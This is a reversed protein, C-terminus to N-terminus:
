VTTEPLAARSYRVNLLGLLSERIAKMTDLVLLLDDNRWRDPSKVRLKVINQATSQDSLAARILQPPTARLLEHLRRRNYILDHIVVLAAPMELLNALVVLESSSLEGQGARKKYFNVAGGRMSQAVQRYSIEAMRVMLLNQIAIYQDLLTYFSFNAPTEEAPGPQTAEM